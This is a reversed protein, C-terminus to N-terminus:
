HLLQGPGGFAQLDPPSEPLDGAGAPLDEAQDQPQGLLELGKVKRCANICGMGERNGEAIRGWADKIGANKPNAVRFRIRYIGAIMAGHGRPVIAAYKGYFRGGTTTVPQDLEGATKATAWGIGDEGKPKPGHHHKCDLEYRPEANDPIDGFKDGGRLTSEIPNRNLVLVAEYVLGSSELAALADWCPQREEDKSISKVGCAPAFLGDNGVTSAAEGHILRFGGAHTDLTIEYSHWANGNPPVGGWGIMDQRQYFLLLMRAAVDGCNKLERLPYKFTGFGQVLGNGIWVRDKAEEGFMPLVHRIQGRETPGDPLVEGTLKIWEDRPYVLAWLKGKHDKAKIAQLADLALKGRHPNTSLATRIAKISATSYQGSKETFCALALYAGITYADAKAAILANIAAQPVTFSGNGRKPKADNAKEPKEM